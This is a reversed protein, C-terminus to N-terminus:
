YEGWVTATTGEGLRRISAPHWGVGMAKTRMAGSKSMTPVYAVDGAVEVFIARTPRELDNDDDGVLPADSEDLIAMGARKSVLELGKQFLATFVGM